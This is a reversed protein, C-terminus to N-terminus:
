YWEGVKLYGKQNQRQDEKLNVNSAGKFNTPVVRSRGFSPACLFEVFVQFDPWVGLVPGSISSSSGFFARLSTWLCFIQFSKLTLTLNSDPAIRAFSACINLQNSIEPEGTSQLMTCYFTVIWHHAQPVQSPPWSTMEVCFFIPWWLAKLRYKIFAIIENLVFFFNRLFASESTRYYLIILNIYM